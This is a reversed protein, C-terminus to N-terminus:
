TGIVRCFVGLKRMIVRNQVYCAHLKGFRARTVQTSFLLKNFFAFYHLIFLTRKRWARRFKSNKSFQCKKLVDKHATQGFGAYNAGYYALGYVVLSWLCSHPMLGAHHSPTLCSRHDWIIYVATPQRASAVNSFEFSIPYQDSIPLQYENRTVEKLPQCRRHRM